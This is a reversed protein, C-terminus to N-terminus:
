SSTIDGVVALYADELTPEEMSFDLVRYNSNRLFEFLRQILEDRGLRVYMSIKISDGLDSMSISEIPMLGRVIRVFEEGGKNIRLNVKHLLGLKSKLEAPTGSAIVSGNNIITVSDALLEIEHMNHGTILVTKGSTSLERILNRVARASEVDLGLTPEDLLLVDPDSFLAKAIALRARMGLSYTYYPRNAAEMLDVLELLERARRRVYNFDMGKLLGYFVLNEYGSISSYFGKSVDLAIGVRRRVEDAERVVDFGEILVKGSDPLLLTALVKITTTKGAGNPGLLAHISGKRVNFSIGKLAEVVKRGKFGERVVYYKKLDEVVIANM